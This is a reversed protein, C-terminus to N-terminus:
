LPPKTLPRGSATPRAPLALHKTRVAFHSTPSMPIPHGVMVKLAPMGLLEPLVAAGCIAVFSTLLLVHPRLDLCHQVLRDLWSGLLAPSFFRKACQASTLLSCCRLALGEPTERMAAALSTGADLYNLGFSEGFCRYEAPGSLAVEWGRRELGLALAVYPQLDGRTGQCAILITRAAM